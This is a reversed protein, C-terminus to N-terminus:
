RKIMYDEKVQGNEFRIRFSGVISAAKTRDIMYTLKRKDRIVPSGGKDPSFVLLGPPYDKLNDFVIGYPQVSWPLELILAPQKLRDAFYPSLGGALICVGGATELEYYYGDDLPESNNDSKFWVFKVRNNLISELSLYQNGGIISYRDTGILEDSRLINGVKIESAAALIKDKNITFITDIHDIGQKHLFPLLSFEIQDCNNEEHCDYWLYNKKDSTCFLVARDQGCDIFTLSEPAPGTFYTTWTLGSLAALSVILGKISLRKNFVWESLVYLFCYFIVLKCIGPSGINIVAMPLDTFFGLLPFIISMLLKVPWAFIVAIADGLLIFPLFILGAITLIGALAIMPVNALIGAIPLRNFYEATLPLVAIQASITTVLTLYVWKLCWKLRYKKYKSKIHFKPLFYLIGACAAVSLQFGINFLWLPQWILLLLGAFGLLGITDANKQRTYGILGVAAMVSARVVSPENRTLFSFFIIVSLLLILKLRRNLPYLIILFFGVVVAVNSGSVAMLHFTGTDKFLKDINEPINRKEGLVFGALLFAQDSPLYKKYGDLLTKRVPAVMNNVFFEDFSRWWPPSPKEIIKIDDGRSLVIMGFIERNILYMAYDFGGPIRPGGPIFLNGTFKVRDRFSFSTSLEKIKIRIRGSSQLDRKRWTLSDVEVVLYTKDTRIDPEEVIEGIITVTNGSEAIKGVHTPPFGSSAIKYQATGCLLLSIYLLITTTQHCSRFHFIGASVAVSITLFLVAIPALPLYNGIIIGTSYVVLAKLAPRGEFLGPPRQRDPYKAAM